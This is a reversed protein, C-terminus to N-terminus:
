PSDIEVERDEFFYKAHGIAPFAAGEATQTM